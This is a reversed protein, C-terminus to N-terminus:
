IKPTQELIAALYQGHFKKELKCSVQVGIRIGYFYHKPTMDVSLSDSM